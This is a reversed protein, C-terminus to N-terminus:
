VGFVGTPLIVKLWNNFLHYLGFSGVVSCLAVAIPNRAGLAPLLLIIFALLTLRYGLPDLLAVVMALLVLVATPRFWADRPPLVSVASADTQAGRAGQVLLAVALAGGIIALCLPFFGPGPGLKDFLALDRVQWVVSVFAALLLLSAAQWARKV